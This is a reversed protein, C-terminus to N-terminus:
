LVDGIVGVWYYLLLFHKFYTRFASNLDPYTAVVRSGCISSILPKISYFLWRSKPSGLSAKLCSRSSKGLMKEPGFTIRAWPFPAMGRYRRTLHLELTRRWGFSSWCLDRSRQHRWLWELSRNIVFLFMFLLNKKELQLLTCLHSFNFANNSHKPAFLSFLVEPQPTPPAEEQAVVTEAASAALTFRTPTTLPPRHSRSLPFSLSPKFKVSPFTLAKSNFTPLLNPHLLAM